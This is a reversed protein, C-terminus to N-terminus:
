NAVVEKSVYKKIADVVCGYTYLSGLCCLATGQESASLIGKEIAEETNKCPTSIVGNNALIEAYKEASLARPNDPTITFAYSAVEAISKAIANYDKDSLVGTFIVVRKDGFYSKISAVAAAIGEANHAGDFIVTPSDLIVEFRAPWSATLLGLRVAKDSIALGEKRLIDVATLVVAANRPQYSGLLSIKINEWTKYSFESGTLDSKKVSLASYDLTYLPSNKREAVERIVSLAADDEGGFLVPCGAKIIGAKEFAIKEVTDGLFAVHDLSIGTIISLLPSDIVNTSDLRGGMGVELVVVDCSGRRFYEFAIATILEFETPKDAMNEAIPRVLATIETLEEDSIEVGSIRMRENFRRVYPSTYLGVRYGEAALIKALMSSTSGKGNTGGVHIYKMAREPHGLADLLADIRDLGPKCFVSSSSHIYELTEEYNM